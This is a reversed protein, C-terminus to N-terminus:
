QTNITLDKIESILVVEIDEIKKLQKDNTLFVRCGSIMATALHIADPLRLTQTRIQAAKILIERSIPVANLQDSTQIVSKYVAQLTANKDAIPKVLTEALSLESTVALLKRQDILDFLQKLLPVYEAYGELLYIFINADLYISKGSIKYSMGM